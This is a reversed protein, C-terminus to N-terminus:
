QPTVTMSARHGTTTEWYDIWRERIANTRDVLERSPTHEHEVVLVMGTNFNRQSHDVDPIRPGEAAIVDRITVKTRDAKFVPRGNADRGAPVLNRLIFFDPVEAPSILGMMYLDLYSYGTAPVYYDDDLQTYTGDFNDQWVGGGMASAETPRQYPFAVPAQLGRAWHVPGLVITEGNIKASAFASWRHGMEHGLQSMAYNYARIKHDPSSEELQHIYFTIDHDSGVPAGEPPREQMQNSDVYVPQVYEWQFRGRSCYAEMDHQGEGTGQVNGAKPGDSPTGAEQNDIRFDSYYALFDFKDGLAKIVTCSLDQPRPLSLYHFAEYLVAFPGDGRTLSSFHVEPDRIETLKVIRPSMREVPEANGRTGVEASVSVQEVGRFESPLIGEVTITNGAVKVKRLTGSGFAVYRPSRVYRSLGVITWALMPNDNGTPPSSKANFLVRYTIGDITKDGEAMIPGRTELTARLLAGDVVSLRLNRVDLHAPLDPHPEARLSILDREPGTLAPYVGVIADKAALDKYSMDISGDRHLVAQFRNVTKFWTFDQINGFPETLDWTIVVRDSLEKAFHPGSMRPKFFVCIAPARDIITGAAEALPDFRGISVGGDGPSGRFPSDERETTGFRISGTTGVHFSNWSQGSFPFAFQHLTVESGLIESGFDSDWQLVGSEVRYRSGDRTFHVTHGVLDFVNVKGLAGDNLELTILNGQTSVKGISHGQEIRDDEQALSMAACLLLTCLSFLFVSRCLRGRESKM